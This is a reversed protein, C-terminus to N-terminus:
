NNLPLQHTHLGLFRDMRFVTYQLLHSQLLQIHIYKILESVKKKEIRVETNM